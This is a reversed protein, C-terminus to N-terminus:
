ELMGHEFLYKRGKSTVVFESPAGSYMIEDALGREKLVDLFYELKRESLRLQGALDELTPENSTVIVKLVGEAEKPLDVSVGTV